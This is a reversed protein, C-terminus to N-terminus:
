LLKQEYVGLLGARAVRRFILEADTSYLGKEQM